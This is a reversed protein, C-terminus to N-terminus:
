PCTNYEREPCKSVEAGARCREVLAVLLLKTEVFFNDDYMASRFAIIITTIIFAVAVASFYIKKFISIKRKYVRKGNYNVNIDKIAEQEILPVDKLVDLRSNKEKM